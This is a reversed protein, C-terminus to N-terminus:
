RYAGYSQGLPKRWWPLELSRRQWLAHTEEFESQLRETVRAIRPTDLVTPTLFILLETRQEETSTGTLVEGLLPIDGFFPVKREQEFERSQVLGGLVITAGDPVRLVTDTERIDVVPLSGNQPQSANTKPQLEVSAVESVSPRIHLTIEGEESVQPTVDLNVGVPIVTPIFETFTQVVGQTPTITETQAVFFVRNRVVKIMAKHNNLTSVRPTSVVRVDTQKALARLLLGFNDKAFGVSIGGETLVPALSQAITAERLGPTILREFIGNVNNGPLKPASEIDFGLDFDDGLTVEVIQADILVQRRQSEAVAQLYHEVEDLVRTEATVSILGAQKSVIVRRDPLASAAPAAAGDGDEADDDSAATADAAGFVITRVAGEIEGWLDQETSTEIESVSSDGTSTSGQVDGGLETDAGIFGALSVRSEGKRTYTPYDVRYTRTERDHRFIRLVNGRVAYHYGRGTVLEDLIELLSVNALDASVLGRVDPDVVINLPSERGLGLLVGRLEADQVLLTFSTAELLRLAPPRPSAEAVRALRPALTTPPPPAVVAARPAEADAADHPTPATPQGLLSCSLSAACALAAFPRSPRM